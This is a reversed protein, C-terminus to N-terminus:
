LDNIGLEDELDSTAKKTMESRQENKVRVFEIMWDCLWPPFHLYEELTIGYDKMGSVVYNSIEKPVGEYKDFHEYKNYSIVDLPDGENPKIFMLHFIERKIMAIDFGNLERDIGERFKKAFDFIGNWVDRLYSPHQPNFM